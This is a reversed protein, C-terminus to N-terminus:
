SPMHGQKKLWHALAEAAIEQQTWPKQRKLKREFSVRLLAQHIEGPVRFSLAVMGALPVVEEDRQAPPRQRSSKSIEAGNAEVAPTSILPRSDGPVVGSLNESQRKPTGEKIFAVAEASLDEVTKLAASM